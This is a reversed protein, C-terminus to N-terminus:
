DYPKFIAVVKRVNNELLYTGSTGNESLRPRIGKLFGSKVSDFM